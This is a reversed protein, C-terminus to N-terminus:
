GNSRNIARAQREAATGTVHGGGDVPEGGANRVLKSDEGHVVRFKGNKKKVRAPM